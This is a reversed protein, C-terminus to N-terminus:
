WLPIVMNMKRERSRLETVNMEMAGAKTGTIQRM